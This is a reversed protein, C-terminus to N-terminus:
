LEDLGFASRTYNVSKAYVDKGEVFDDNGMVGPPAGAPPPRRLSWNNSCVKLKRFSLFNLHKQHMVCHASYKTESALTGNLLPSFLMNSCQM